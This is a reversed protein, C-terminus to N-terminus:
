RGLLAEAVAEPALRSQGLLVGEPVAQVQVRLQGVAVQADGSLPALVGALPRQARKQLGNVVLDHRLAGEQENFAEVADSALVGPLGERKELLDDVGPDGYDGPLPM